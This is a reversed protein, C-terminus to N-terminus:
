VKFRYSLEDSTFQLWLGYGCSTIQLSACLRSLVGSNLLDGLCEELNFHSVLCCCLPHM